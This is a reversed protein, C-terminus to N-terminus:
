PNFLNVVTTEGIKALNFKEIELLVHAYKPVVVIQSRDDDNSDADM